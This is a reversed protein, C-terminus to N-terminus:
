RLGFPKGPDRRTLKPGVLELYRKGQEPSMQAAVADLHARTATTCEDCLSQWAAQAAALEAASPNSGTELAHLRRRSAGIRQCHDACVPEYATNLQEIVAAQTPTLAFEDRLWTMEDPMPHNVCRRTIAFAAIGVVLVLGFLWFWRKM